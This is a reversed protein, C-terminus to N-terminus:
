SSEETHTNGAALRDTRAADDNLSPADDPDTGARASAARERGQQKRRSLNAKLAEALRKQRSIQTATGNRSRLTM